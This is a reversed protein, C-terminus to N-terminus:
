RQTVASLPSSLSHLFHGLLRCFSLLVSSSSIYIYIRFFILVFIDSTNTCMYLRHLALLCSSKGNDPLSLLFYLHSSSSCPCLSFQPIVNCLEPSIWHNVRGWVGGGFVCVCVCVCVRKSLQRFPSM